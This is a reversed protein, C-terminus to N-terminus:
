RWSPPRPCPGSHRAPGLAGGSDFPHGRLGEAAARRGCRVPEEHETRGDGNQDDQKRRFSDCFRLAVQRCGLHQTLQRDVTTMDATSSSAFVRRASERPNWNGRQFGDSGRRVLVLM